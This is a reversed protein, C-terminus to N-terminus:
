FASVNSQQCFDTYDFSHKKWYDLISTLILHYLLSLASFSISEFQPASSSEHSDRPALTYFKEIRFSILGIYENSPNISFSASWYEPWRIHLASENSFVRISPFISPLPLIPHCLILHNSPMVLEISMLKPLSRSNTFSLSAQHAATWPNAFHQVCNLSQVVVFESPFSTM